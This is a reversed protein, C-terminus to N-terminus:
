RSKSARCRSSKTTEGATARRRIAAPTSLCRRLRGPGRSSTSPRADSWGPPEWSASECPWRTHCTQRIAALTTVEPDVTAEWRFSQAMALPISLPLFSLLGFSEVFSFFFFSFFAALYAGDGRRQEKGSHDVPLTEASRGLPGPPLAPRVSVPRVLVVFIPLFEVTKTMAASAHGRTIRPGAGGARAAPASSVTVCPAAEASPPRTLVSFELMTTAAG